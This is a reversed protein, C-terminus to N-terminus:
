PGLGLFVRTRVWRLVCSVCLKWPCFHSNSSGTKTNHLRPQFSVGACVLPIDFIENTSLTNSTWCMCHVHFIHEAFLSKWPSRIQPMQSTRDITVWVLHVTLLVGKGNSQLAVDASEGSQIKQKKAPPGYAMGIFSNKELDGSSISGYIWQLFFTFSLKLKMKDYRHIKHQKFANCHWVVVRRAIQEQFLLKWITLHELFIEVPLTEGQKSSWMVGGFCHSDREM